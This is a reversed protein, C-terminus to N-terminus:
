ALHKDLADEIASRISGEMLTLAFGLDVQVEVANASVVIQGNVGSGSVLLKDGDWQSQLRLRGGIDAAIEDVRRRAEDAGLAHERKIRV